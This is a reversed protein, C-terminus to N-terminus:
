RKEAQKLDKIISKDRYGDQLRDVLNQMETMREEDENIDDQSVGHVRLDVQFSGEEKVANNLSPAESLTWGATERM